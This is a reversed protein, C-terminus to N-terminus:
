FRFRLFGDNRVGTLPDKSLLLGPSWGPGEQRIEIEYAEIHTAADLELEARGRVGSRAANIWGGHISLQSRKEQGRPQLQTWGGGWSVKGWRDVGLGWATLRGHPSNEGLRLHITTDKNPRLHGAAAVDVDDKTGPSYRQHSLTTSCSAWDAWDWLLTLSERAVFPRGRQRFHSRLHWRSAGWHGNIVVWGNQGHGERYLTHFQGAITEGGGCVTTSAESLSTNGSLGQWLADFEWSLGEFPTSSWGARLTKSDGPGPDRLEAQPSFRAGRHALFFRGSETTDADQYRSVEATWATGRCFLNLGYNRAVDQTYGEFGWLTAGRLYSAFVHGRKRDEMNELGTSLHVPGASLGFTRQTVEPFPSHQGVKISGWGPNSLQGELREVRWSGDTVRGDQIFSLICGQLMKEGEFHQPINLRIWNKPDYLQDALGTLLGFGREFGRPGLGFRMSLGQLPGDLHERALSLAQRHALFRQEPSLEELRAMPEEQGLLRELFPYRDRSRQPVFILPPGQGLELPGSGQIRLRIKGGQYQYAIPFEQFRVQGPDLGTELQLIVEEQGADVYGAWRDNEMTMTMTIPRDSIFCTDELHAYFTGQGTFFFQRRGDTEFGSVSILGDTTVGTATSMHGDTSIVLHRADNLSEGTIEKARALGSSLVSIETDHWGSSDTGMPVLLLSFHREEGRPQGARIYTHSERQGFRLTHQGTRLTIQQRANEPNLFEAALGSSWTIRDPNEQQASGLGHLVLEYDHPDPSRLRDFIVFYRKGLFLVTRQIDTGGYRSKVTASSVSNTRFCHILEGGLRDQSFPNGLPGQGDVLLMNHGEASLYWSRGNSIRGNPGYGSDIILDQGHAHLEFNGPDSHEHGSTLVEDDEGMLILYIGQSSWDNGFVALGGDPFFATRDWPPPQPPVRDDFACVFEVEGLQNGDEQPHREYMWRAVGGLRSQGVLIPLYTWDVEWADDFFPTTGDPKCIRLRWQILDEVRRHQFLNEGTAGKLYLAFPILLRAIYDSYYVGERYSGDGDIQALGSRLNEIAADLWTQAEGPGFAPITLAATGVAAAMITKHNNPPAFKLNEYLQDAEAAIKASVVQREQPSLDQAILDYAVCYQLMLASARVWDGWGDGRKGGEPTIVAPPASINLLAQRAKELFAPEGTIACAFACSKAAQARTSEKVAPDSLDETLSAEARRLVKRWWRAYPERLVRGRILDKEAESFLLSPHRESPLAITPLYVQELPFLDELDYARYDATAVGRLAALAANAGSATIRQWGSPAASIPAPASEQARSSGARPLLTIGALLIIWGKGQGLSGLIPAKNKM